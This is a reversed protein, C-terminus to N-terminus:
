EQLHIRISITAGLTKLPKNKTYQCFRIPNPETMLSLIKTPNVIIAIIAIEAKTSISFVVEVPFLPPQSITPQM